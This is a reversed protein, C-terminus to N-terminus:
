GAVVELEGPPRRVAEALPLKAWIAGIRGLAEGPICSQGIARAYTRKWLAFPCNPRFCDDSGFPETRGLLLRVPDLGFNRPLPREGFAQLNALLLAGLGALGRKQLALHVM